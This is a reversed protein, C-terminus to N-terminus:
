LLWLGLVIGFLAGGVFWQALYANRKRQEYREIIQMTKNEICSRENESDSCM